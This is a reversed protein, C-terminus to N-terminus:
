AKGKVAGSKMKYEAVPQMTGSSVLLIQGSCNKGSRKGALVTYQDTKGVQWPQRFECRFAKKDVMGRCPSYAGDMQIFGTFSDGDQKDILLTMPQKKKKGLAFTGNWTEAWPDQHQAVLDGCRGQRAMAVKAGFEADWVIFVGVGDKKEAVYEYTTNTEPCVFTLMNSGPNLNMPVIYIDDPLPMLMRADAEPNAAKAVKKAVLGGIALALGLGPVDDSSGAASAIASGAFALDGVISAGTKFQAKGALVADIERGGRTTAQFTATDLPGDVKALEAGNVLVTLPGSAGNGPSFRLCEGYKGTRYKFPGMGSQFVVVSNFEAPVDLVAGPFRAHQKSFKLNEEQNPNDLKANCLAEIYDMEAMDDQYQEKDTESSRDRLAGSRCMARANEFDGAQFYLLARLFYIMAQEYSEGHFNKEDEAHFTSLSKEAAKDSGSGAELRNICADLMRAAEDARGAGMAVLAIDYCLRIAERNGSKELEAYMSAVDAAPPEAPLCDQVQAKVEAANREAKTMKPAKAATDKKGAAQSSLTFLLAIVLIVSCIRGRM